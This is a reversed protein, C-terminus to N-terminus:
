QLNAGDKLGEDCVLRGWCVMLCVLDRMRELLNHIRITHGLVPLGVWGGEGDDGEWEEKCDHKTIKAM